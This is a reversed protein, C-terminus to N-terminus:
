IRAGSGTSDRDATAGPVFSDFIFVDFKSRAEKLQEESRITWAVLTCGLIRKWVRLAAVDSHQWNFAIFDPWTIANLAMNSLLWDVPKVGVGPEKSFDDSLQGRSVVPRFWRYWLLARPDFSEICYPGDYYRLAADTERCTRIVGYDPKIEVILSVRGGIVELVETFLPISQESKMIRRRRLEDFSLDRILVDEGCIRQLGPDHAVVLRDDKTLRVDLEIGFGADAARAFAALSNEPYGTENDFLGRHAILHRRFTELSEQRTSM